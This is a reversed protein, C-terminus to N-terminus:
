LQKIEDVTLGKTKVIVDMSIGMNKLHKATELKAEARGEVYGAVTAKKKAYDMTNFYDNYKKWEYEYRAREEKTLNPRSAIEEWSAFIAKEDKFSIKDLYKM